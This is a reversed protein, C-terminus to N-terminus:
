FDRLWAPEPANREQELVVTTGSAGTLLWVRDCTKLIMWFGHGMTGASSFGKELTARHLSEENIGTGQDQVWVQITGTSLDAHVRGEGGGAHVVANMAAEGAATILDHGREKPLRLEEAVAEVQKRLVRLTPKSLAIPDSAPPLPTPLDAPIDCLQLRGETMGALMERLFRRQRLAAAHVQQRARREEGGLVAILLGVLGFLVSSAIDEKDAPVFSYTPAVFFFTGALVGLLTALL